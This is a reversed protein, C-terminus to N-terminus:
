MQPVSQRDLNDYRQQNHEMETAIANDVGEFFATGGERIADAVQPGALEGAGAASGEIVSGVVNGPARSVTQRGVESGIVSGRLPATANGVVAGVARGAAGGIAAGAVAAKDVNAVADGVSQGDVVGGVVQGAASAVASGAAAGVVSSAFPNVAGVAAGVAVGAVTARFNGGSAIFGGVGGSIAGYIAGPIGFEGTPDTMNIPDNAVYAYRNFYRPDGGSGMFSVPDNSLFRGAVPDYMRAQMYTLGTDADAIHGTFGENDQNDLPKFWGEGYPTYAEFWLVTGADDTAALPSGLHDKHTYIAKTQAFQREFRVSAGGVSLYETRKGTSVNDRFLLTGDRSYFTYLTEGNSKVQKVRRRNGDYTYTSGLVAIPQDARDYFLGVSGNNTVNGRDDYTWDRWANGGITSDRLRSARNTIPDIDIQVLRNGLEKRTLNGLADYTFSGDGWVGNANKLRGISDYSISSVSLSSMLNDTISSILGRSNYTYSLDLASAGTANVPSVDINSLLRRANLSQTLRHGNAYDAQDLAGNAHWTINDVYKVGSKELKTARGFGDPAMTFATNPAIPMFREKLQENANYQYRARYTRGDIRLREEELLESPNDAFYDIVIGGRTVRRLNGNITWSNTIDPTTGPYDTTLLRGLTDYGYKIRNGVSPATCATGIPAAREEAFLQGARDYQYLTHGTEPVDLRCLQLRFNYFYKQTHSKNNGRQTANTLNGFRDYTMITKIEETRGFGQIIELTEGNDPSGFGSFHTRTKFNDPDTVETINRALYRSETRAAVRGNEDIERVLTVRGLADYVMEVGEEPSPNYSPQSAFIERGYADFKTVSNIPRSPNMLMDYDRVRIVRSFGDYQVAMKRNGRVIQQRLIGSSFYAYSIHTDSLGTPRDILTLRGLSDYSYNTRAERNLNAQYYKATEQTIWGNDDVQRTYEIGDPRVVSQPIGRHYNTFSRQRNLADNQTHLTGDPHYEYSAVRHSENKSFRYRNEVQGKNNAFYDFDDFLKNNQRVTDTLGLIWSSRDHIYTTDTTRFYNPDSPTLLNVNGSRRVRTPFGYSYSPSSPDLDYTITTAYNDSGRRITMKSEHVPMTLMSQNSRRLWTSGIPPEATYEIDTAQALEAFNSTLYIQKKTLKGEYPNDNGSLTFRRDHHYVSLENNPNIVYTPRSAPLGCDSGFCGDTDEYRYTWELTDVGATPGNPSITKRVISMAEFSATIALQEFKCNQGASSAVRSEFFTRGHRTEELEFSGILGSPHSISIVQNGRTCGDEETGPLPGIDLRSLNYGWKRGDPREVNTLLASGGQQGYTYVWHRSTNGPGNPAEVRRILRSAGTYRVDIRRGDNAVISTLRNNADYNYRVSNGHVDEVSTALMTAHYRAISAGAQQSARRLVFRDFRYKDGNPALATFGEGNDGPLLFCSIAWFDTTAKTTGAPWDRDVGVDILQRSGQGPIELFLGNSYEDGDLPSEETLLPGVNIPLAGESSSCRDEPWVPLGVPRGNDLVAALLITIRPTELQWDGFDVDVGGYFKIGQERRRRIAVELDSNGPISVDIQGFSISGTNMDIMDGFINAGDSQLREDVGQRELEELNFVADGGQGQAAAPLLLHIILLVIFYKLITHM